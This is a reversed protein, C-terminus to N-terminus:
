CRCSLGSEGKWVTVPAEVDVCPYLGMLSMVTNSAEVRGKKEKDQPYYFWASDVDLLDPYCRGALDFVDVLVEVGDTNLCRYHYGKPAKAERKEDEPKAAAETEEGDQEPDGEALEFLDGYFM